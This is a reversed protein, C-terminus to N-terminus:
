LSMTTTHTTLRYITVYLVIHMLSPRRGTIKRHQNRNHPPQITLKSIESVIHTINIATANQSLIYQEHTSKGENKIKKKELLLRCVPHANTVPTWVHARGIKLRQGSQYALPRLIVSMATDVGTAAFSRALADRQNVGDSLSNWPRVRAAARSTSSSSSPTM